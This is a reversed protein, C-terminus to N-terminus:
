SRPRRLPTANNARPATKREPKFPPSIKCNPRTSQDKKNAPRKAMVRLTFAFAVSRWPMLFAGVTAEDLMVDTPDLTALPLVM